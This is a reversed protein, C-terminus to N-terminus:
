LSRLEDELEEDVEILDSIKSRLGYLYVEVDMGTPIAYSKIFGLKKLEMLDEIMADIDCHATRGLPINIGDDNDTQNKM